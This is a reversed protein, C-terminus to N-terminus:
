RAAGPYLEALKRATARANVSAGFPIFALAIARVTEVRTWEAEAATQLVVSIYILFATGHVPGMIQVAVPLTLAYKLPVAVALLLLLTTGEAVSAIEMRHIQAALETKRIQAM